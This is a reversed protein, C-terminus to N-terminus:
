ESQAYKLKWVRRVNPKAAQQRIRMTWETAGAKWEPGGLGNVEDYFNVGYFNATEASGYRKRFVFRRSLQWGPVLALKGAHEQDYWDHYDKEMDPRPTSGNIVVVTGPAPSPAPKQNRVFINLNGRDRGNIFSMLVWSVQGSPCTRADKEYFVSDRLAPGIDHLFYMTNHSSGDGETDVLSYIAEVNPVPSSPDLIGSPPRENKGPELLRMLVGPEAMTNLRVLTDRQVEDAQINSVSQMKHSKTDQVTWWPEASAAFDQGLNVSM